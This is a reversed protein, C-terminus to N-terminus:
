EEEPYLIDLDVHGEIGPIQGSESVQWVEFPGDFTPEDTYQALWIKKKDTKVWINDLYYKSGYLMAEYGRKECEEVFVDYLHNLNKFSMEYTQFDMFDEWDFAIPLDLEVGELKAFVEALSKLLEEENADYSFFYIGVKLGAEKAKVINREYENDLKFRGRDSFGIRMIVFDCGAKKVADYDVEGQWSSVDIGFLKKGGLYDKRFDEFAYFWEEGEEEKSPKPAKAIVKVDIDWETLNDSEDSLTIHLPYTGTKATNVEGDVKLLPSPDANDGYAIYDMINFQNGKVIQAGYGAALIMPPENDRVVVNYSRESSNGYDDQAQINVLYIGPFSDDYDSDYTFSGENVSVNSRIEKEGYTENSDIVVTDQAFTIEPPITDRVEYSFAIDRSFIWKKVQYHHVFEGVEDTKLMEEGSSVEGNAKAIFDEAKYAFGRELVPRKESFRIYPRMLFFGACLLVLVVVILGKKKLATKM